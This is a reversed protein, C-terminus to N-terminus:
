RSATAFQHIERAADRGIVPIKAIEPTVREDFSRLNADLQTWVNSSLLSVEENVTELFGAFAQQLEEFSLTIRGWSTEALRNEREMEAQTMKKKAIRKNM